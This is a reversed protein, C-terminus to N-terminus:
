VFFRAQDNRTQEHEAKCDTYKRINGIDLESVNLYSVVKKQDEKRKHANYELDGNFFKQAAAKERTPYAFILEAVRFSSKDGSYDAGKNKCCSVCGVRLHESLIVRKVGHEHEQRVSKGTKYIKKTIHMKSIKYGTEDYM